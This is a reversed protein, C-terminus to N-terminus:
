ENVELRADELPVTLRTTRVDVPSLKTVSAVTVINTVTPVALIRDDAAASTISGLPPVLLIRDRVPVLLVDIAPGRSTAGLIATITARSLLQAHLAIRTTLDAAASAMAAAAARM